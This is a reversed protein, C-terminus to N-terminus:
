WDLGLAIRLADNLERLKEPGLSGRYRSLRRKGLTFVNDCNAASEHELGEESGLRIESVHGRVTSTILVVTVSTLVPIAEERTVVVVPHPGAGPIDAEFVGGRAIRM